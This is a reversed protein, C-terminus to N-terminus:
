LAPHCTACGFNKLIKVLGVFSLPPHRVWLKEFDQDIGCLQTGWGNWLKITSHTPVVFRLRCNKTQTGGQPPRGLHRAKPVPSLVRIGSTNQLINDASPACHDQTFLICIV